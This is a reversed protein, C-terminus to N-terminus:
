PCVTGVPVRIFYGGVSCEKTEASLPEYPLPTTGTEDDTTTSTSTTATTASCDNPYVAIVNSSCPKVWKAYFSQNAIIPSSDYKSSYNQDSYWSDFVYGSFNTDVTLKPLVLIAGFPVPLISKKNFSYFSIALSNGTTPSSTYNGSSCNSLASRTVPGVTGTSQINKSYQYKRVANETLVGFYGTPETELFRAKYLISQLRSVEGATNADTSGRVLYYRFTYCYPNTQAKSINLSFISLLLFLTLFLVKKM